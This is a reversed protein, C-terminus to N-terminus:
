EKPPNPAPTQSTPLGEIQTSGTHYLESIRKAGAEMKRRTVLLEKETEALSERLKRLEAKTQSSHLWWGVALAVIMTVLFLDRITFKMLSSPPRPILFGAGRRHDCTVRDRQYAASQTRQEDFLLLGWGVVATRTDGCDDPEAPQVEYTVAQASKPRTSSLQARAM